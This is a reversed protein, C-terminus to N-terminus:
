DQQGTPRVEPMAVGRVSGGKADDQVHKYYWGKVWIGSMCSHDIFDGGGEM